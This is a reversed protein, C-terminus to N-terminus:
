YDGIKHSLRHQKCSSVLQGTNPTFTSMAIRVVAALSIDTMWIIRVDSKNLQLLSFTQECPYISAFNPLMKKGFDKFNSYKYDCLM